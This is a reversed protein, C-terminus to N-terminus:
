RSLTEIIPQVRAVEHSRLLNAKSLLALVAFCTEASRVEEKFMAVPSPLTVCVPWGLVRFRFAQLMSEIQYAVRAPGDPLRDLGRIEHDLGVIAKLLFLVGHAWM